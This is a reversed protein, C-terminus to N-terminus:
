SSTPRSSTTRAQELVESRQVSERLSRQGPLLLAAAGVVWVLALGAAAGIVLGGASDIAKLPPFRMGSRFFSGVWSGLAELAAAGVVAGALGVLPAWPSHSGSPLVVTAIRAGVIAGVVIGTIALLSAVLGKRFGIFGTLAVLGLAIWDVRTVLGLSAASTSLPKHDAGRRHRQELEVVDLSAVAGILASCPTERATSSPWATASSPAFPAPFVVVSRAIEPM